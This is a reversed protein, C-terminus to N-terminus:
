NSEQDTRISYEELELKLRQKSSLSATLEFAPADRDEIRVDYIGRRKKSLMIALDRSRKREYVYSRVRPFSRTYRLHGPTVVIENFHSFYFRFSLLFFGSFGVLVLPYSTKALLSWAGGAFGVGLGLLAFPWQESIWYPSIRKIQKEGPTTRREFVLAAGQIIPACAGPLGFWLMQLNEYASALISVCLINSLGVHFVITPVFVPGPRFPIGPMRMREVTLARHTARHLAFVWLAFFIIWLTLGTSM